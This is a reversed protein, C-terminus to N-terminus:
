ILYLACLKLTYTSSYTYVWAGYDLDLYLIHEPSCSKRRGERDVSGFTVLLRVDIMM